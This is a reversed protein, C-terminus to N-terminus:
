LLKHVKQFVINDDDEGLVCIDLDSNPLYLNHYFSGYCEVKYKLKM